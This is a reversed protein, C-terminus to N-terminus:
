SILEVGDDTADRRTIFYLSARASRIIRDYYTNEKKEM